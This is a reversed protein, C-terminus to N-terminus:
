DKIVILTATTGSMLSDFHSHSTVNSHANAFLKVFDITKFDKIAYELQNYIKYVNFIIELM